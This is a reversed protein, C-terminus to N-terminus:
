PKTVNGSNVRLRSIEPDEVTLRKETIEKVVEAIQEKDHLEKKRDLNNSEDNLTKTETANVKISQV